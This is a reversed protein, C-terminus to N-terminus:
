PQPNGLEIVGQNRPECDNQTRIPKVRESCQVAAFSSKKDHMHKNDIADLMAGRRM